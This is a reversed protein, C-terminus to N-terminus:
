ASIEELYSEWMKKLKGSDARHHPSDEIFKVLIGRKFFDPDSDRMLIEAIHQPSKEQKCYRVWELEAEDQNWTREADIQYNGKEVRETIFDFKQTTTM